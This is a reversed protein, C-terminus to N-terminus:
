RGTLVKVAEAEKQAAAILILIDQACLVTDGHPVLHQDQRLIAAIIVEHSLHIESLTKGIVPSNANLRLKSIRLGNGLPLLTTLEDLFTQQEVIQTITSLACVVSDIGM